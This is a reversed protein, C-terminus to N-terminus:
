YNTEFICALVTFNLVMKWVGGGYGGVVVVGCVGVVFVVVCVWVVVVGCRWVVM